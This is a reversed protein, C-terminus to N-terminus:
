SKPIQKEPDVFPLPAVTAERVGEPTEVMLRTGLETHPIPMWAYGINKELRPSYVASTVRGSAGNASVPWQTANMELRDGEIEIGVIKQDVGEDRIRALAERAIFDAETDLDVLRDLGLEFPNNEYTMDAGWNFIGGEIRRIDVPGTPRMEYPQGAEMIREWLDTGRSTDLLYIEYGVETTWGTRTLILPIGDLELRRFHYYRLDLVEEGFLDRVVDKSQPGQIQLPDAEAESLQVDMGAYAALGKAYPLVDSDALAFWFTNEDLRLMVPDNLIGGDPATILVYKAQGVACASLDRCTLLQAFRFGDPGTVEVNREVAVDWVTVHNLLHWYEAEFDDFNTPFLTHNYVTFGKPGYRQTAEFYSSRRLRAGRQVLSMDFPKPMTSVDNMPRRCSYVPAKAPAVCAAGRNPDGSIDVEL